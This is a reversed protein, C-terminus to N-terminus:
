RLFAPIWTWPFGPSKGREGERKERAEKEETNHQEARMREEKMQVARRAWEYRSSDYCM